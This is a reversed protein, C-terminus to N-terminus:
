RQSVRKCLLMENRLRRIKKALRECIARPIPFSYSDIAIVKFLIDKVTKYCYVNKLPPKM